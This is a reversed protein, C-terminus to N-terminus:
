IQENKIKIYTVGVHLVYFFKKSRTLVILFFLKKLRNSALLKLINKRPDIDGDTCM